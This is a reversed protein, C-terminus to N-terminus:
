SGTILQAIRQAITADTVPVTTQNGNQDTQTMTLLQKLAESVATDSRGADVESTYYRMFVAYIAKAMSENLNGGLSTIKKVFDSESLPADKTIGLTWWNRGRDISKIAEVVKPMNGSAQLNGSTMSELKSQIEGAYAYISEATAPDNQSYAAALNNLQSIADKAKSIKTSDTIGDGTNEDKDLPANLYNKIGARFTDLIEGPTIGNAASSETAQALNFGNQVYKVGGAGTYLMNKSILEMHSMREADTLNKIPDGAANVQANLGALQLAETPANKLATYEDAFKNMMDTYQKETIANANTLEANYSDINSNLSSIKSDLANKHTEIASNLYGIYSQNQRGRLTYLYNLQSKAIMANEPNTLDMSTTAKDIYDEIEKDTQEIYADRGKIYNTVDQPLNLNEEKMRNVEAQQATIKYKAQLDDQNKKMLDAYTGGLAGETQKSAFALPGTSESVANQVSSMLTFPEDGFVTNSEKQALFKAISKTDISDLSTTATVGLAKTLQEIYLGTNNESSPAYKNVFQEVTFGRSQDLKVQNELAAQGFEPTEFKAWYSGPAGAVPSGKTAGAQGVYKLNGPNNNEYAIRSTQPIKVGFVGSVGSAEGNVTGIEGEKKFTNTSPDWVSPKTDAAPTSGSGYKWTNTTSDWTSTPKASPMNALNEKVATQLNSAGGSNPNWTKPAVEYPNIKGVNSQSISSSPSWTSNNINTTNPLIKDQSPTGSIINSIGEFLKSGLKETSMTTNGPKVYEAGANYMSGINNLGLYNAATGVGSLATSTTNKIGDWINSFFGGRGDYGPGGMGKGSAGSGPFSETPTNIPNSNNASFVSFSDRNPTANNFKVMENLYQSQTKKAVPSNGYVIRTKPIKNFMVMGSPTFDPAQSPNTNHPALPVTQSGPGGMGFGENHNHLKSMISFVKQAKIRSTSGIPSALAERILKSTNPNKLMSGLMQGKSTKLTFDNM